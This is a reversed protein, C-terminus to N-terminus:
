VHHRRGVLPNPRSNAPTPSSKESVVRFAREFENANV